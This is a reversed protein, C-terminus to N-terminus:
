REPLSCFVLGALHVFIKILQKNPDNIRTKITALLDTPNGYTVKGGQEIL